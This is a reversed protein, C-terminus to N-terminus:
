TMECVQRLVAMPGDAAFAERGTLVRYLVSGLSFLDAREDVRQGLAQEPAMYLPTGAVIGTQTLRAQDAAYALGFDGIKATGLDAPGGEGGPLLINSPKIDRHVLGRAHAAELGA